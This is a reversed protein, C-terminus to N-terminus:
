YLGYIPLQLHTKTGVKDPYSSTIFTISVFVVIGSLSQLQRFEEVMFMTVYVILGILLAPYFFRDSYHCM